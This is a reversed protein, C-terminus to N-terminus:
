FYYKEYPPGLLALIKRLDDNLNAIKLVRKGDAIVAFERVRRFLFFVWKLTPRQTQKKTQSIVTKGTRVLAQRLQYEVMSYIFLCIVMIMALAQIRSPKKLYIEAVRFSKDKLFRFGREVAGQGKYYDLLLDPSLDLDNTALVFRGLRQREQQIFDPDQEIEAVIVYVVSLTEGSKPRGRSKKEKHHVPLIALHTFRYRPHNKVWKNAAARADPECKFEHGMLKKLSKRAKVIDKELQSLFTKEQHQHMPESHFVVWKQEIGAYTMRVEHYSYRSDQCPSFSLDAEQLDKVRAITAPVRTIWFTHRGLGHLTEPTYFESDAIHYVKDHSKLNNVLNRIIKRISEKDSENGRSHRSFSPYVM